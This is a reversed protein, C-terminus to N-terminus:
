NAMHSSLDGYPKENRNSFGGSFEFQWLRGVKKGICALGTKKPESKICVPCRAYSTQNSKFFAKIRHFIDIKLFTGCPADRM